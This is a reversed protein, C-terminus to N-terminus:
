LITGYQYIISICYPLVLTSSCYATYLLILLCYICYSSDSSYYIILVTNYINAITFYQYWLTYIGPVSYLICLYM